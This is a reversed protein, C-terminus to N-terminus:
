GTSLTEWALEAGGEALFIQGFRGFIRDGGCAVVPLRDGLLANIKFGGADHREANVLEEFRQHDAQIQRILLCGRM